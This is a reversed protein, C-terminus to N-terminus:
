IGLLSREQSLSVEVLSVLTGFIQRASTISHIYKVVSNATVYDNIGM